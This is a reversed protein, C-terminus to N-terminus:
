RGWQKRGRSNPIGLLDRYKAITRRAVQFGDAQLIKVIADDSLPSKKNEQAVIEQIKSRVADNSVDEGGDSSSLGSVFFRRLPFLGRPSSMWKGDCARSVTSVHIGILDAIQQMKLPKLAQQGDEFFEIQHDVIAQSVLLLTERRQEIADLISQAQGIHHRVFTKVDKDANREKILNKYYERIQIQPIRSEELRVNYGGSENKEVFVDPIVVSNVDKEFGAGPRPNFQRLEAIAGQVIGLPLNTKKTIAPMRNTSIDELCSTILIPLVEAYESEPSIQLILCERLDKGGVGAPELRKVLELAERALELEEATYEEGLFNELTDSFYGSPELHYIIRLAMERMSETIDFWGLQKELHEQLTESPSEINAFADAVIKAHEELWNQSRVPAEDITDHYSQAFEDAISFDENTREDEIKIEPEREEESTAKDNKEDRENNEDPTEHLMELTPNKELEQRIEQELQIIPLQLIKMSQILQPTLRQEQRQVLHQVQSFSQRM